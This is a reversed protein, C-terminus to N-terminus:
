KTTQARSLVAAVEKWLALCEKREDPSLKDLGSPERLGALDDDTQWHRMCERVSANTQANGKGVEKGWWMLDQGLWDLAQRRWRSRERDDLKDADLGRGCGALAAACAADYRTGKTVDEALKPDANFADRFFQAAAANAKKLVSLKALEIQEADYRTLDVVKRYAAEAEVFKGQEELTVGLNHHAGDDDPKLAIGNCSGSTTVWNHTAFCAIPLRM